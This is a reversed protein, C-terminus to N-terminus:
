KESYNPMEFFEKTNCKKFFFVCAQIDENLIDYGSNKQFFNCITDKYASLNNFWEDSIM